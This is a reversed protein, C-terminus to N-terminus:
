ADSSDQNIVEDQRRSEHTMAGCIRLFASINDWADLKGIELGRITKIDVDTLESLDVRSLGLKRRTKVILTGPEVEPALKPEENMAGRSHTYRQGERGALCFSSFPPRVENIM